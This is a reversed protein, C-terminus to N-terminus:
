SVEEEDSTIGPIDIGLIESIREIAYMQGKIHRTMHESKYQKLKGEALKYFDLIQEEPTLEVEYGIYVAKILTELDMGNLPKYEHLWERNNANGLIINELEAGMSVSINTKAIEIAQAQEKTLKVKEM